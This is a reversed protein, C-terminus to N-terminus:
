EGKYKNDFFKTAQRHFLEIRADNSELQMGFSDKIGSYYVQLPFKTHPNILTCIVTFTENQYKINLKEKKINTPETWNDQTIVITSEELKEM